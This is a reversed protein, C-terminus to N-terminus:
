KTIKFIKYFLKNYTIIDHMKKYSIIRQIRSHYLKIILNRPDKVEQNPIKFINQNFNLIIKRKEEWNVDWIDLWKFKKINYEQFKNLIYLDQWFFNEKIFNNFDINNESYKKLWEHPIVKLKTPEKTSHYKYNIKLFNNKLEQYEFLRYYNQKSMMRQQDVFQFHLVKIDKITIANNLTSEPVRSCHIRGTDFNMKRDDYYAFNGIGGGWPFSSNYHYSDGWLQIWEMKISMGPKLNKLSKSFNQNNLINASLIEDADLAFILNDGKFERAKNLLLQRRTGENYEIEKNEIYVVKKFKKCIKATDDRSNQDAVIIYDFWLSACLLTKEIIWAENKVPMVLIKNM